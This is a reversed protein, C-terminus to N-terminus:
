VHQKAKEWAKVNKCQYFLCYVFCFFRRFSFKYSVIISRPTKYLFSYCFFTFIAQVVFIVSCIPSFQRGFCSVCVECHLLFFALVLDSIVFYIDVNIIDREIYIYVSLCSCLPIICAHTVFESILRSDLQPEFQHVSTRFSLKNMIQMCIQKQMCVFVTFMKVDHLRKHKGVATFLM